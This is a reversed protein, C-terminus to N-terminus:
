PTATGPDNPIEDKSRLEFGLQRARRQLGKILRAKTIAEYDEQTKQVYPMGFKLANYVLRALKHATAAVAQPAGLRAKMRRYYAGLASRSNWVSNAAMKLAQAARNAGRRTRSSKVNGGTKKLCPCLGLWSCFHKVTRFKSVDVGIEALLTLATTDSIGEIDTLDMGVVLYMAERAGFRPANHKLGHSHSKKEPLPPLDRELKMLGLHKAIRADV